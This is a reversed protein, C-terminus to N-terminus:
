GWRTPRMDLVLFEWRLYWVIAASVAASVHWPWGLALWFTGWLVLSIVLSLLWSLIDERGPVWDDGLAMSSPLRSRSKFAATRARPLTTRAAASLRHTARSLRSRLPNLAREFAPTRASRRGADPHSGGGTRASFDAAALLRPM